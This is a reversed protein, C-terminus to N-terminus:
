ENLVSLVELLLYIFLFMQSHSKLLKYVAELAKLNKQQFKAKLNEWNKIRKSKITGIFFMRNTLKLFLKQIKNKTCLFICLYGNILKRECIKNKNRPEM